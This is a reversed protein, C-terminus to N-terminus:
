IHGFFQEILIIIAWADRVTSSDERTAENKLKKLLGSVELFRRMLNSVRLYCLYSSEM